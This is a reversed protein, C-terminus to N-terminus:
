DKESQKRQCIQEILKCGGTTNDNKTGNNKKAILFNMNNFLLENYRSKNQHALEIRCVIINNKHM